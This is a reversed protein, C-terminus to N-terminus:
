ADSGRARQTELEAAFALGALVALASLQAWIMFGILGALPGYADGFTASLALHGALGGSFLMWLVTSTLGGVLLWSVGPQDRNPAVKYIVSPRDHSRESWAALAVM